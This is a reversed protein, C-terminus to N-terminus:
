SGPSFTLVGTALDAPFITEVSVETDDASWWKIAQMASREADTAPKASRCTGIAAIPVYLGAFSKTRSPYPDDGEVVEGRGLSHGVASGPRRSSDAPRSSPVMSINPLLAGRKLNAYLV